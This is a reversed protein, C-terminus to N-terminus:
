RPRLAPSSFFSGENRIKEALKFSGCFVAADRDRLTAVTKKYATKLDPHVIKEGDFPTIASELEEPSYFKDSEVRPLRLFVNEGSFKRPFDAPNKTKLVFFILHLNHHPFYRLTKELNQWGERNHSSDLIVVPQDSYIEMRWRLKAEKLGMLIEEKKLPFNQKMIKFIEIAVAANEAQKFGPLGTTYTKKEYEFTTGTFGIDKLKTRFTVVLPSKKKECTDKFINLVRPNKEGTILCVGPKIIGAKARAVGEPYPGLVDVHDHGVNTIASLSPAVANVPDLLGGMGVELLLVRPRVYRTFYLLACCTLVDSFTPNEGEDEFWTRTYNVLKRLLEKEIPLGRYKLRETFEYVHPSTFSGVAIGSRNLVSEIMATVSGKGNTGGITVTYADIKLNNGSIFKKVRSLGPRDHFRPLNELYNEFKRM